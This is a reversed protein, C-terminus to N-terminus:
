KGFGEVPTGNPSAQRHAGDSSGCALWVSRCLKDIPYKQHLLGSHYASCLLLVYILLRFLLAFCWDVVYGWCFHICKVVASVHVTYIQSYAKFLVFVVHVHWLLGVHM